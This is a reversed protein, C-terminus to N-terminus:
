LIRVSKQKKSVKATELRRAIGLFIEHSGGSYGGTTKTSIDYAYGISLGQELRIGASVIVADGPRWGVM